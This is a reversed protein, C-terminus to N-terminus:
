INLENINPMTYKLMQGRKHDSILDDELAEIVQVGIGTRVCVNGNEDEDNEGEWDEKDDYIPMCCKRVNFHM